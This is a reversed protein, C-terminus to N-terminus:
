GGLAAVELHKAWLHSYYHPEVTCTYPCNILRIHLKRWAWLCSGPHPVAVPRPKLSRPQLRGLFMYRKGDM